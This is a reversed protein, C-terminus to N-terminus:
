VRAYVAVRQYEDSKYHDNRITEPFHQYHDLDVKARIRQRIREKRAESSMENWM